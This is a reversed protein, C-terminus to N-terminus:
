NRIGQGILNSAGNLKINFVVIRQPILELNLKGMWETNPEGRLTREKLPNGQWKLPRETGKSPPDGIGKPPGEGWDKGKGKGKPSQGGGLREETGERNAIRPFLPFPSRLGEGGGGRRRGDKAGPGGPGARKRTGAVTRDRLQM